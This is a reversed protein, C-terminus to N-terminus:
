PPPLLVSARALDDLADVVAERTRRLYGAVADAYIASRSRNLRRALREIERLVEDPLASATKMLGSYLLSGKAAVVSISAASYTSPPSPPAFGEPAAAGAAYPLKALPRRHLGKWPFRPRAGPEGPGLQVEPRRVQQQPGSAVM